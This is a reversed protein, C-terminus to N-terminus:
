GEGGAPATISPVRRRMPVLATPNYTMGVEWGALPLWTVCDDQLGEDGAEIREGSRLLRWQETMPVAQPLVPGAYVAHTFGYDPQARRTIKVVMESQRPEWEIPRDVFGVPVAQPRLALIARAVLSSLESKAAEAEELGNGTDFRGGVLSWASAFVQAQEMIKDFHADADDSVEAPQAQLSVVKVHDPNNGLDCTPGWEEECDKALKAGCKCLSEPARSQQGAEYAIRMIQRQTETVGAEVTRATAQMWEDASVAPIGLEFSFGNECFPCTTSLMGKVVSPVALTPDLPPANVFEAALAAHKVPDKLVAKLHAIAQMRHRDFQLALRRWENEHDQM